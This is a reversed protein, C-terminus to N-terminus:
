VCGCVVALYAWRADSGNFCARSLTAVVMAPADDLDLRSLLDQDAPEFPPECSVIEAAKPSRPEAAQPSSNAFSNQLLATRTAESKEGAFSCTSLRIRVIRVHLSGLRRMGSPNRESGGHAAAALNAGIRALRFSRVVFGHYFSFLTSYESHNGLAYLALM